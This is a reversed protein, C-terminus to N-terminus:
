FYLLKWLRSKKPNFLKLHPVGFPRLYFTLFENLKACIAILLIIM